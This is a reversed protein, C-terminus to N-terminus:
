VIKEYSNECLNFCSFPVDEAALHNTFIGMKETSNTMWEVVHKTTIKIMEGLRATFVMLQIQQQATLDSSKITISFTDSPYTRRAIVKRSLETELRQINRGKTGILHKLLTADAFLTISESGARNALAQSTIIVFYENTIRMYKLNKRVLFSRFEENSDSYNRTEKTLFLLKLDTDNFRITKLM